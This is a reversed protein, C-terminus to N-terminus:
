TERGTSSQTLAAMWAWWRQTESSCVAVPKAHKPILPVIQWMWAIYDQHTPPDGAWAMGGWRRVGDDGLSLGWDWAQLGAWWRPPTTWHRTVEDGLPGPIARRSLARMIAPDGPALVWWPAILRRLYVWGAVGWRTRTQNAHAVYVVSDGVEPSLADVWM